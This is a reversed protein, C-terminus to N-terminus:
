NIYYKIVNFRESSTYGTNSDLDKLYRQNLKIRNKIDQGNWRMGSTEEESSLRGLYGTANNPNNGVMQVFLLGYYDAEQEYETLINGNIYDYMEDAYEILENEWSTENAGFEEDLSSFAKEADIETGRAELEQAGHGLLIHSLEHGIFHALESESKFIKLAGTSIFIYGGPVSYGTVDDTDLLLIRVNLDPRSSKEIMLAVLLELYQQVENYRVLGKQAIAQAITYSLDEEHVNSRYESRLKLLEAFVKPEDSGPFRSSKFNNYEQITFKEALYNEIRVGKDVVFNNAFKKAFGKVAAAVEAPSADLVNERPDNFTSDLTANIRFRYSTTEPIDDISEVLVYKPVFGIITDVQIESWFEYTNKELVERPSYIRLLKDYHGAPGTRADVTQTVIKKQACLLSSFSVTTLLILILSNSVKKFMVVMGNVIQHIM